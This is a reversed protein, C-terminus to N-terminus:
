RGHLFTLLRALRPAGDPGAVDITALGLPTPCVRPLSLDPARRELWALAANQLDLNEPREAPGSLKLVYSAGDPAALRFNQDRESPLEEASADLGWSARALRAADAEVWRPRQSTATPM